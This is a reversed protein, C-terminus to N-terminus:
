LKVEPVQNLKLRKKRELYDDLKDLTKEAEEKTYYPSIIRLEGKRNCKGISYGKNSNTVEFPQRIEDLKKDLEVGYFSLFGELFARSDNKFEMKVKNLKESEKLSKFTDEIKERISNVSETSKFDLSNEPLGYSTLTKNVVEKRATDNGELNELLIKRRADNTPETDFKINHINFSNFKINDKNDKLNDKNDKLYICTDKDLKFLTRDRLIEYEHTKFISKLAEDKSKFDKSIVYPEKEKQKYELFYKDNDKKLNIAAEDDITFKKVVKGSRNFIEKEEGKKMEYIGNYEIVKQEELAEDLIKLDDGELSSELDYIKSTLEDDQFTRDQRINREM